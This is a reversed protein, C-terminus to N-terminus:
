SISAAPKLQGTRELEQIQRRLADVANLRLACANCQITYKRNVRFLPVFFLTFRTTRVSATYVTKKGCRSCQYVVQGLAKETHRFGWILFM